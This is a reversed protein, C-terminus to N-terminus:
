STTVDFNDFFCFTVDFVVNKLTKNCYIINGSRKEIPFYCCNKENTNNIIVLINNNLYFQSFFEEGQSKPVITKRYWYSNTPKLM